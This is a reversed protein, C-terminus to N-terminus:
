QISKSLLDIIEQPKEVLTKAGNQLLEKKTRFGWLVGLPYMGAAVATQMDVDSDGAYLIEAPATCLERAMQLAGDPAPKHPIGPHHGTVSDFHWPSLLTEVCLKTFRDPKNSLVGTKIEKTGLWDLLEPIGPYPRSNDKWTEAYRDQMERKLQDILEPHNQLDDPLAKRVLEGMGYGVLYRVAKMDHTPLDHDALVSNLTDALDTLTDLLTGDLDFIVANFTM